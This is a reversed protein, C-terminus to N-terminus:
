CDYEPEKPESEDSPLKLGQLRELCVLAGSTQDESGGVAVAECVRIAAELMAEAGNRKADPCEKRLRVVEELVERTAQREPAGWQIPLRESLNAADRLYSVSLEQGMAEAFGKRKVRYFRWLNSVFRLFM